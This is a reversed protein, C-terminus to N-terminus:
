FYVCAWRKKFLLLGCFSWGFAMVFGVLLGFYIDMRSSHGDEHQVVSTPQYGHCKNPLPSGCLGPNGIYDYMDLTDLQRGTPIRGSLNNYSLNLFSLSTLNSLALPIEGYLQNNSLDLSELSRLTGITDPINGTFYNWSFNLNILGALCGIEEPIQGYLNNKSLDISMLYISNQTYKLEQGKTVMTLSDDFLGFPTSGFEGVYQALFPNEMPDLAKTATLAKLNDLSQPITGCLTNNALDLFRLAPLKTIDSPIHGSFNNSRLGLIVLEPLESIWAPLKGSFSNHALDLFTLGRCNRLFMPFEGSLNNRSLLLTRINLSSPSVASSFAMSSNISSSNGQKLDKIGCDPLEGLLLNSSLDLVRLQKWQCIHEPIVGIISNSYLLIIQLSPAEFGLSLKGNLSNRSFDFVKISRPLRPVSGTLRNSGLALLQVSMFELNPPLEGEFTNNSLMLVRTKSFTTWFWNPITGTLNASSMELYDIDKQSRLWSPFQPGVHCLAFSAWKLQFPPVWTLDMKIELYYNASLTISTLSSLNDFHEETVVGSLNNAALNLYNLNTLGGIGVPISGSIHNFSLDLTSLNSLNPPWKPMNGTLSANRLYLAQLKRQPCNPLREVLYVVDVGINNSRLDLYKLNCLNTVTEPVMGHLNNEGLSLVELSTMNGLEDPFSGSLGCSHIILTKLSTINWFWNPVVRSNLPNWPLYLEELVTLNLHLLSPVSNMISCHQLSLVRLNPLTNVVDVWDLATSINVGDMSLHELSSSLRTLWTIDPSYGNAYLHGIDLYALKSLNGLQPPVMGGFGTYSLNLYKLSKLSGLFEPIPLGLDGILNGSLDLHRLHHLDLLSSSIQGRLLWHGNIDSGSFYNDDIFYKNRLNLKIVHGTTNSCKVGSWLCCGDGKWSGLRNAPDSTIGAKFSLLAAREAAICTSNIINVEGDRSSSAFSATTSNMILLLTFIAAAQNSSSPQAVTAAM